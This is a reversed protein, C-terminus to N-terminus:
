VLLIYMQRDKDSLHLQRSCCFQEIERTVTTLEVL